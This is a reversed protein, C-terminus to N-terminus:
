TLITEVTMRKKFLHIKLLVKKDRWIQWLISISAVTGTQSLLRWYVLIGWCIVSPKNQFTQCQYIVMITVFRSHSKAAMAVGYSVSWVVLQKWGPLTTFYRNLVCCRVSWLNATKNMTDFPYSGSWTIEIERRKSNGMQDAAPEGTPHTCSFASLISWVEDVYCWLNCNKNMFSLYFITLNQVM